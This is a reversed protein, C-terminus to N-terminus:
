GAYATALNQINTGKVVKTVIPREKKNAIKELNENTRKTEALQEQSLDREPRVMKTESAVTAEKQLSEVYKKDETRDKNKEIIDQRLEPNNESIKELKEYEKNSEINELVIDSGVKDKKQEEILMASKEKRRKLDAIKNQLEKNDYFIGRSKEEAYDYLDKESMTLLTDYEEDGSDIGMSGLLEQKRAISAKELRLEAEKDSIGVGAQLKESTKTQDEKSLGLEKAKKAAMTKATAVEVESKKNHAEIQAQNYKDQVDKFVKDYIAGGFKYGVYATAAMAAGQMLLPNTAISMLKPGLATVLKGGFKSMLGGLKNKLFNEIFGQKEDGKKASEEDIKLGKGSAEAITELLEIQEKDLDMKQQEIAAQAQQQQSLEAESTVNTKEPVAMDMKEFFASEGLADSIKEIAEKSLGAEPSATQKNSEIETKRATDVIDLSDRKEDSTLGTSDPTPNIEEKPKVNFFLEESKQKVKEVFAQQELIPAELKALESKNTEIKEAIATVAEKDRSMNLLRERSAITQEIEKIKELLIKAEADTEGDVGPTTIRDEYKFQAEKLEDRSQNQAQLIKEEEKARAEDSSQMKTITKAMEELQKIEDRKSEVEAQQDPSIATRFKELVDYEKESIALKEEFQTTLSAFLERTRSYEENVQRQSALYKILREDQIDRLEIEGKTYQELWKEKDLRETWELQKIQKNAEEIKREAEATLGKKNLIEDNEIIEQQRIEKARDAEEIKLQSEEKLIKFTNSLAKIPSIKELGGFAKTALTSGMKSFTKDLNGKFNLIWSEERSAETKTKRAKIIEDKRRDEIDRLKDKMDTLKELSGKLYLEIQKDTKYKKQELEKLSGGLEVINDTLEKNFTQLSQEFGERLKKFETKDRIAADKAAEEEAKRYESTEANFKDFLGKYETRTAKENSELKKSLKEFAVDNDHALSQMENQIVYAFTNEAFNKLQESTSQMYKLMESNQKQQAIEGPLKMLADAGVIEAM